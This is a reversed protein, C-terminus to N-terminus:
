PSGYGPQATPHKGSGEGGNRSGAPYLARQLPPGLSRHCITGTKKRPRIEVASFFAVMGWILLGAAVAVWKWTESGDYGRIGFINTTQGIVLVVAFAWM